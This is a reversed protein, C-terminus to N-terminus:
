APGELASLMKSEPAAELGLISKIRARLANDATCWDGILQIDGSFSGTGKSSLELAKSRAAVLDMIEEYTKLTDDAPPHPVAEDFDRLWGVINMAELIAGYYGSDNDSYCVDSGEFDKSIGHLKNWVDWFDIPSGDAHTPPKITQTVPFLHVGNDNVGQLTSVRNMVTKALDPLPEDHDVLLPIFTKM